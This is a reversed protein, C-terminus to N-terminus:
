IVFHIIENNEVIDEKGKYRILGLKKAEEWNKVNLFKELSLTEAIKFKRVFDSHIMYAAKELTSGKEIFWGQTIEDTFTFFQILGLDKAFQTLFDNIKSGFEKKLNEDNLIELEWLLDLNYIEKFDFSLDIEIERGNILLFWDKTLLLNFEKLKQSFESFRKGPVLNQYLYNLNDIKEKIEKIFKQKELKKFIREIIEKESAIIEEEIIM